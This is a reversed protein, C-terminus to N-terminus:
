NPRYELLHRRVQDAYGRTRPPVGRARVVQRVSARYTAALNLAPDGPLRSVRAGADCLYRGLAPISLEPSIDAPRPEPNSAGGPQWRVLAVPTWRAIGYQHRSPDALEPDFGSEVKLMAAVLAPSMGPTECWTGARVILRRYQPPIDRDRRLWRGNPDGASEGHRSGDGGPRPPPPDDSVLAMVTGTGALALVLLGGGLLIWRRRGRRPQRPAKAGAM